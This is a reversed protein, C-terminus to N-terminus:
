EKRIFTGSGNSTPVELTKGSDVTLLSMTKQADPIASRDASKELVLTVENESERTWTGTAQKQGTQGNMTTKRTFTHTGDARFEITQVIQLPDAPKGQAMEYRGVMETIWEPRPAPKSLRPGKAPDIAADGGSGLNGPSDPQSYYYFLGGIVAAIVIPLHSIAHHEKHKPSSTSSCIFQCTFLALTSLVMM